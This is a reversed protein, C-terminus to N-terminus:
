PNRADWEAAERLLRMLRAQQDHLPVGLRTEYASWPELSDDVACYGLDGDKEVMLGSDHVLRAGIRRWATHWKHHKGTM